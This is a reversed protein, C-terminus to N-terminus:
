GVTPVCARSHTIENDDGPQSFPKLCVPSEVSGATCPTETPLCILGKEERRM